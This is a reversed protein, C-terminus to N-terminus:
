AHAAESDANHERVIVAHMTAERVMSPRNGEDSIRALVAILVYNAVLSSGGYAVFPLTIGTLPFLRTIGGM